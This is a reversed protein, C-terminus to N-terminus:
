RITTFCRNHIYLEKSDTRTRMECLAPHSCNMVKLELFEAAVPPQRFNTRYRHKCIAPPSDANLSDFMVCSDIAQEGSLSLASGVVTFADVLSLMDHAESSRACCISIIEM